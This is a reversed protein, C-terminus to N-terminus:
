FIPPTMNFAGEVPPVLGQAALIAAGSKGESGAVVLLHGYSGKHTEAQRPVLYAALEDGTLLSLRGDIRSLLDAPVGLDVLVVDGVAEAAPAFVHAIKPAVFTVTADAEVHPGPVEGSSADLGSPLDIALCPRVLTNLM